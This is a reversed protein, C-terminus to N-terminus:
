RGEKIEGKTEEKPKEDTKEPQKAVKAVGGTARYVSKMLKSTARTSFRGILGPRKLAVGLLRSRYSDLKAAAEDRQERVENLNGGLETLRAQDRAQLEEMLLINQNQQEVTDVLRQTNAKSTALDEQLGNARDYQWYGLAGVLLLVVGMIM